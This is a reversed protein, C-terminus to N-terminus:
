ANGGGKVTTALRDLLSQNKRSALCIVISLLKLEEYAVVRMISAVWDASTLRGSSSCNFM